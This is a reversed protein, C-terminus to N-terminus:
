RPSNLEPGAHPVDAYTPEGGKRWRPWPLEHGNTLGRPRWILIALMIIALGVERVGPRAPIHVPGIDAGQEIRHLFEAVFSITVAGVVAGSLSKLGGIVLMALTTFTLALYFASANFSGLYMGYLAGGVGMVFAHVTWAVRREFRVNVGLSRAAIFEERSGRLRLGLGTSQFAFGAVIAILAWVLAQNKTTALEPPIGSIGAAGNTVAEWSNAVTRVIVLVAFTALGAAIGTLRMLPIGLVAAVAAAVAGGLLTAAVPGMHAHAIFKPLLPQLIAKQDPPIVMLAATYAGISAFAISGFSFVGSTGVFMYLGVVLIVDILGVVVVGQTVSGGTAYAIEAAAVVLVLLVPLPWVTRVYRM